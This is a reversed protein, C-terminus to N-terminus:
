TLERRPRWRFPCRGVPAALGDPYRYALEAGGGEARVARGGIARARRLCCGADNRLLASPLGM